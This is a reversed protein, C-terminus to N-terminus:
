AFRMLYRVTLSRGWTEWSGIYVDLSMGTESFAATLPQVIDSYLNCNGGILINQRAVVNYVCRIHAANYPSLASLDIYAFPSAYVLQLSRSLLAQSRSLGRM